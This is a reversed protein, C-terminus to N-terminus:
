APHKIREFAPQQQHRPFYISPSEHENDSWLFRQIKAIYPQMRELRQQPLNSRYSIQDIIKQKQKITPNLCVGDALLRPSQGQDREDWLLQIQPNASAHAFAKATMPALFYVHNCNVNSAYPVLELSAFNAANGSVICQDHKLIMRQIANELELQTMLSM